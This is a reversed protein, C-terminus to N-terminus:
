GSNSTGEQHVLEWDEHNSMARELEKIDIVQWDHIGIDTHDPLSLFCHNDDTPLKESNDQPQIHLIHLQSTLAAGTDERLCLISRADFVQSVTAEHNFYIQAPIRIGFTPTMRRWQEPSPVTRLDDLGSAGMNRFLAALEPLEYLQSIEYGTNIIRQQLLVPTEAPSHGCLATNIMRFLEASLDTRSPAAQQYHCFWYKAVYKMLPWRRCSKFWKRFRVWPRVIFTTGLQRIQEFCIQTMTGHGHELGPLHALSMFKKMSPDRFAVRGDTDSTLFPSCVELLQDDASWCVADYALQTKCDSRSSTTSRVAATLESFSLDRFSNTVFYIALLALQIQEVSRSDFLDFLSHKCM